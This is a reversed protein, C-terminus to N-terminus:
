LQKRRLDIILGDEKILEKGDLTTVQSLAQLPFAEEQWSVTKLKFYFAKCEKLRMPGSYLMVKQRGDDLSSIEYNEENIFELGKPITLTAKLGPTEKETCVLYRVPISSGPQPNLVLERYYDYDPRDKTRIKLETLLPLPSGALLIFDQSKGDKLQKIGSLFYESTESVLRGATDKEMEILENSNEGVKAKDRSRGPFYRKGDIIVARKLEPKWDPPEPDGLDIELIAVTADGGSAKICYRKDDSIRVKFEFTKKEGKKLLGEYFVVSYGWEGYGSERYENKYDESDILELGKPLFCGIRTDKIDWGCYFTLKLVAIKNLESLKELTLEIKDARGWQAAWSSSYALTTLFMVLSIFLMEASLRKKNM